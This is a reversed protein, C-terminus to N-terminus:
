QDSGVLEGSPVGATPPLGHVRAVSELMGLYAACGKALAQRGLPTDLGLTHARQIYQTVQGEWFGGRGVGEERMRADHEGRADLNEEWKPDAYRDCEDRLWCLLRYRERKAVSWSFLLARM